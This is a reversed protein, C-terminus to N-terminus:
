QNDEWLMDLREMEKRLLTLEYAPVLQFCSAEGLEKQMGLEDYKDPEIQLWECDDYLVRYNKTKPNRIGIKQVMWRLLVFKYERDWGYDFGIHGRRCIYSLGGREKSTKDANPDKPDAWFPGINWENKKERGVLFEYSKGHENMFDIMKQALKPNAVQISVSYGM